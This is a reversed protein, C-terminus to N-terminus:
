LVFLPNFHLRKRIFLITSLSLLMVTLLFVMLIKAIVSMDLFIYTTNQCSIDRKCVRSLIKHDVLLLKLEEFYSRYGNLNCSLPSMSSYLLFSYDRAVEVLHGKVLSRVQAVM